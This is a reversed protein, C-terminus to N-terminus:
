CILPADKAIEKPSPDLAVPFMTPVSVTLMPPAVAVLWATSNADSTASEKTCSVEELPRTPSANLLMLV